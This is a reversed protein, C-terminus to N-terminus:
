PSGAFVKEMQRLRRFLSLGIAGFSRVLWRHVAGPLAAKSMVAAGLLWSRSNLLFTPISARLSERLLGCARMLEGAEYALFAHYRYKNSRSVQEVREVTELDEIRAKAMVQEYATRMRRWNETTQGSRRRSCTLVDPLCVFNNPRLKVIRFWMDCDSSALLSEDFPGASEMARRRMVASSGNGVPNEIVLDQFSFARYSGPKMLGYSRDRDDVVCSLSFVLDVDLLNGFLEMQREIMNPLWYDDGDLFAVFEGSSAAFGANRASACGGNEKRIMTLRDDQISEVARATTDTSGDDVVIVELDSTTQTLVSRIAQEIYPAVNYAPVIVSALPPKREGLDASADMSGAMPVATNGVRSTPFDLRM